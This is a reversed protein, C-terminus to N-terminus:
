SEAITDGEKTEYEIESGMVDAEPNRTMEGVDVVPDEQEEPLPSNDKISPIDPFAMSETEREMKSDTESANQETEEYRVDENSSKADENKVTNKVVGFAVFGVLALMMIIGLVACIMKNKRKKM